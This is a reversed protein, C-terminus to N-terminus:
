IKRIAESLLDNGPLDFEPKFEDMDELASEIDLEDQGCTRFLGRGALYEALYEQETQGPTPIILARKKLLSLDMIGTYGSRCIVHDAAHLLQKLEGSSLHNYMTVTPTLDTRRSKGPLGQLIVCRLKLPLAQKLVIKQLRSRQPEPGSLLILLEVPKVAQVRIAIDPEVFRSIAGIFSANAPLAYRHSLNGSLNKEGPFDPIWCQDFKGILLRIVLYAPYELFRAFGPLRISLQHTVLISSVKRNWLGYRNDSIIVDPRLRRIIPRLRFHEAFVEYLLLPSLLTIKLWAPIYRSYRIRVLSRFHLKELEPFETVLLDLARGNGAIIVEHGLDVMRRIIAVDRAAHGLGWDLPCILTKMNQLM